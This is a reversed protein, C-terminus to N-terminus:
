QVAKKIRCQLYVSKGIYVVLTTALYTAISCVRGGVMYRLALGSAVKIAVFSCM